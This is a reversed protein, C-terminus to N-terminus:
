DNEAAELRSRLDLVRREIEDRVARLGEIPMDHPDPLGWDERKRSPIWPCADGCGMTVLLDWSGDSVDELGKPRHTGLDYDRERMVEIALPSVKGSPASGASEAEFVGAAHMRSFAQAM